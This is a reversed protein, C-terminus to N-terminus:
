ASGILVTNGLILWNKLGGRQQPRVRVDKISPRQPLPSPPITPRLVAIFVNTQFFAEGIFSQWFASIEMAGEGKGRGEKRKLRNDRAIKGRERM